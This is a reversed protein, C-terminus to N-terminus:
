GGPEGADARRRREARGAAGEGIGHRDDLAALIRGGQERPELRDLSAEAAAGAPSPPWADEVEVDDEPGSPRELRRAQDDGVGAKAVAGEHELRQGLQGRVPPIRDAAAGRTLQEGAEPAM